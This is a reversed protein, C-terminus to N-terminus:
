RGNFLVTLRVSEEDPWGLGVVVSDVEDALKRVQAGPTGPAPPTPGQAKMLVDTKLYLVLGLKDGPLSAALKAYGPASTLKTKSELSATVVNPGTALFVYGGALGLTPNVPSPAGGQPPEATKITADGIKRDSFTRNQSVGVHRVVKDVAEQAAKPEKAEFLLAGEPPAGGDPVHLILAIESGWWPAVDKEFDLGTQVQLMGKLSQLQQELQARHEPAVGAAVDTPRIVSLLAPAAVGVLGAAKVGSTGSLLKFNKYQPAAPDLLVTFDVHSASKEAALQMLLGDIAQFNKRADALKKAQEPASSENQELMGLLPLPDISVFMSADAGVRSRSRKYYKATALTDKGDKVRKLAHAIEEEQNSLLLAKDSIVIVPQAKGSKLFKEGSAGEITVKKISDAGNKKIYQTVIWDHFKALKDNRPIVLLAAPEKKPDVGASMGGAFGDPALETLNAEIIKEKKAEEVFERLFGAPNGAKAAGPMSNPDTDLPRHMLPGDINPNKVALYVFHEPGFFSTWAADFDKAPEALVPAAVCLAFAAALLGSKQSIM